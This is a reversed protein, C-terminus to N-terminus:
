FGFHHAVIKLIDNDAGSTSWEIMVTDSRIAVEIMENWLQQVTISSGASPMPSRSSIFDEDEGALGIQQRPAALASESRQFDIFRHLIRQGYIDLIAIEQLIVSNDSTLFTRFETNLSIYRHM